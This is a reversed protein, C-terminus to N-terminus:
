TQISRAHVFSSRSSSSHTRKVSSLTLKSSLPSQSIILIISPLHIFCYFHNWLWSIVCFQEEDNLFNCVVWIGRFYSVNIQFRWSRPLLSSLFMGHKDNQSALKKKQKSRPMTGWIKVVMNMGYFGANKLTYREKTDVKRNNNETKIQRMFTTEDSTLHIMQFRRSAHVRRNYYVVHTILDKRYSADKDPYPRFGAISKAPDEHFPRFTYLFHSITCADKM